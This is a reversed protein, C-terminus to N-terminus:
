WDRSVQFKYKWNAATAPLGSAGTTKNPLWYGNVVGTTTSLANRTISKAHNYAFTSQAGQPDLIIDGIAYNYESTTCEIVERANVLLSVGLNHQRTVQVSAGPLTATYGSDYRGQYAYAVTSTVTTGNTVAEGVFVRNVQSATAGNGVQMKMDQVNFTNQLNTVSYTGGFQYVPALTTSGPTLLGGSIDFYLYNTTNATLGTWTLNATSVGISDVAGTTSFGNSSTLTLAASGSVNQTTLNLNVSTAPLFSPFGSSDIPGSLVTQRKPVVFTSPIAPPLPDIVVMDVGDYEVYTLMNAKIIAPQKIGNSDYQKLNKPGNGGRDLTNSGTVGDAHFLVRMIQNAIYAGYQGNPNAITFTPSIGATTGAIRSQMLWSSTIGLATQANLPGVSPLVTLMFASIGSTIPNLDSLQKVVPNGLSDLGFIATTLNTLASASIPAIAARNVKENLQQTLIAARDLADTIVKPYFSGANTLDLQQTYDLNSQITIFTGTAYIATTTISGGPSAVQDINLSVTYDVNLLLTNEVNLTDTYIVAIDTTTFVKFTFPFTVLVGNAVLPGAKRVSTLVSM